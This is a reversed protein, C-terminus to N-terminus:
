ARPLCFKQRHSPPHSHWTVDVWVCALLQTLSTKSYFSLTTAVSILFMAATFSTCFPPLGPAMTEKSGARQCDGGDPLPRSPVSPRKLSRSCCTQATAAGHHARDHPAKVLSSFRRPRTTRHAPPSLLGPARRPLLPAADPPHSRSPTPSSCTHKGLSMSTRPLALPFFVWSCYIKSPSLPSSLHVLTWPWMSETLDSYDFLPQVKKAGERHRLHHCDVKHLDQATQQSSPHHSYHLSVLLSSPCTIWKAGTFRCISQKETGRKKWAPFPAPTVALECKTSRRAQCLV